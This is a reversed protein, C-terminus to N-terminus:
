LKKRRNAARRRRAARNDGFYAPDPEIPALREFPDVVVPAITLMRAEIASYDADFGGSYLAAIAKSKLLMIEDTM